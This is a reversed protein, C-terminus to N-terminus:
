NRGTHGKGTKGAAKAADYMGVADELKCFSIDPIKVLLKSDTLASLRRFVVDHFLEVVYYYKDGGEWRFPSSYGTSVM